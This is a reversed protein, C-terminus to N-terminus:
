HARSVEEIRSAVAHAAEDRTMPMIGIGRGDEQLLGALEAVEPPRVGYSRLEASGLVERTPGSMAARGGHMVTVTDAYAALLDIKHEVLVISKGRDKLGHIIEFVEESSEPDLQSTPEDIVVVDADMAIISAFAVKQRQGGSLGNPNKDVLREIGLQEVVRRVREIIEDRPVGLNELGLAIEEFVTERIGSIQTFPNDFVCGIATSLEAPDWDQLDKGLIQVQGTLEGEHFHPIIGRVLACLTSKGSANLGVVGHVKGEEWELSLGDLAPRESYAYTFRVDRLTALVM